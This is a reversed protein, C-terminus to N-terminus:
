LSRGFPATPRSADTLAEMRRQVGLCDGGDYGYLFRGSGTSGHLSSARGLCGDSVAPLHHDVASLWELVSVSLGYNAGTPLHPSSQGVHGPDHRFEDRFGPLEAVFGATQAM